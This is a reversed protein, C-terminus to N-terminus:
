VVKPNNAFFFFELSRFLQVRVSLHHTSIISTTHLFPRITMYALIVLKVLETEKTHLLHVIYLFLLPSSFFGGCIEPEACIQFPSISEAVDFRLEIDFHLRLRLQQNDLLTILVAM